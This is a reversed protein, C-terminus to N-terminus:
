VAPPPGIPPKKEKDGEDGTGQKKYLVSLNELVEIVGEQAELHSKEYVCVDPFEKIKGVYVLKGDIIEEHIKITM